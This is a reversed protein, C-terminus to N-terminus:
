QREIGGRSPQGPPQLLRPLFPSRSDCGRACVGGSKALKIPAKKICDYFRFKIVAAHRLMFAPIKVVVIYSQLVVPAIFLKSNSPHGVHMKIGFQELVVKSKNCMCVLYIKKLTLFQARLNPTSRQSNPRCNVLIFSNCLTLILKNQTYASYRMINFKDYFYWSFSAVTIRFSPSSSMRSSAASTCFMISM